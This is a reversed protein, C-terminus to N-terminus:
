KQIFPPWLWVIFVSLKKHELFIVKLQVFIRLGICELVIIVLMSFICITCNTCFYICLDRFYTCLDRKWHGANPSVAQGATAVHSVWIGAPCVEAPGSDGWAVAPQSGRLWPCVTVLWWRESAQTVKRHSLPSHLLHKWQPPPLLPPHTVPSHAPHVRWPCIKIAANALHKQGACRWGWHHGWLQFCWMMSHELFNMWKLTSSFGCPDEEQM